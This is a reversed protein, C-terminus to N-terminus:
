YTSFCLKSGLDLKFMFGGNRITEIHAAEQKSKESLNIIM